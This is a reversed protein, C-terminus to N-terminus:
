KAKVIKFQMTETHKKISVFYAGPKLDNGFRYPFDLNNFSKLLQGNNNRIELSLIEENSGTADITFLESSPNPYIKIFSKTHGFNVAVIKSYLFEGNLDVQKIRYHCIGKYKVDKDIFDYKHQVSTTGNGTVEGIKIFEGTNGDGIMREVEFHSCNSESATVWTLLADNDRRAADFSLWVVPLPDDSVFFEKPEYLSWIGKM